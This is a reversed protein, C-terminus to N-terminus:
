GQTQSIDSRPTNPLQEPSSSEGCKSEDRTDDPGGCRLTDPLEEAQPSAATSSLKRTDDPGGARTSVTKETMPTSTKELM